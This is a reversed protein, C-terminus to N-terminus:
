RSLLRQADGILLRVRETFAGTTAIRELYEATVGVMRAAEDAARGRQMLARLQRLKAEFLLGVLFRLEPAIVSLLSHTQAFSLGARDRRRWAVKALYATEARTDILYLEAGAALETSCKIQAGGENIDVIACDVTAAGKVDTIVGNVLVKRRRLSRREQPAADAALSPRATM